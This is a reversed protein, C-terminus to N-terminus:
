WLEISRIGIRALVFRWIPSSILRQRQISNPAIAYLVIKSTLSDNSPTATPPAQRTPTLAAPTRRRGSGSSGCKRPNRRWMSTLQGGGPTNNVSTVGSPSNEADDSSTDPTGETLPVQMSETVYRPAAPVSLKDDPITELGIHPPGLNDLDLPVEEGRQGAVFMVPTASVSSDNMADDADLRKKESDPRGLEAELCM